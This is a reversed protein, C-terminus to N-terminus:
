DNDCRVDAIMTYIEIPIISKLFKQLEIDLDYRSGGNYLVMVVYMSKSFVAVVDCIKDEGIFDITLKELSDSHRGRNALKRDFKKITEERLIRKITKHLKM